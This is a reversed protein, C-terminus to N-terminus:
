SCRNSSIAFRPTRVTADPQPISASSPLLRGELGIREGGAREGAVAAPHPGHLQQRARLVQHREEAQLHLVARREHQVAQVDAPEPQRPERAGCLVQDRRRSDAQVAERVQERFRALERRRVHQRRADARVRVCIASSHRRVGERHPVPRLQRHRQRRHRRIQSDRPKNPLTLEQALAGATLAGSSQTLSSANNQTHAHDNRSASHFRM